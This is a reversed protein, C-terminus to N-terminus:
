IVAWAVIQRSTFEISGIRLALAERRDFPLEPARSLELRGDLDAFQHDRLAVHMRCGVPIEWHAAVEQYFAASPDPPQLQPVPGDAFLFEGQAEM